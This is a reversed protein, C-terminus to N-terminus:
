LSGDFDVDQFTSSVTKFWRLWCNFCRSKDKKKFINNMKDKIAIKIRASNKNETYKMNLNYRLNLPTIENNAVSSLMFFLDFVMWHFLSLFQSTMSCLYICKECVKWLKLGTRQGLSWINTSINRLCKCLGTHFHWTPTGGNFVLMVAPFRKGIKGYPYYQKWRWSKNGLNLNHLHHLNHKSGSCKLHECVLTWKAAVHGQFM